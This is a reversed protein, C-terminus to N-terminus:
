ITLDNESKLDASKSVFYSLISFIVYLSLGLFSVWFSLILVSPHNMNLLLMAINGLFFFISDALALRSVYKLYKANEEIFTLDNSINKSIRASYFLRIFVPIGTLSLFILWPLYWSSFEPNAEVITKGIMPIIFIYFIFGLLFLGILIIKLLKSPKKIEM